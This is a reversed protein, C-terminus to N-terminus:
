SKPVEPPQPEEEITPISLDIGRKKAIGKIVNFVWTSLLGAGAYYLAHSGMTDPVGPSVPLGPILGFLAGAIVPHLPLTKRGWWFFHRSKGKGEARKQTWVAAKFVQSVLSAAAAFVLLPWHDALLQTVDEFM